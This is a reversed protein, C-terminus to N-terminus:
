NFFKASNTHQRAYNRDVTKKMREVPGNLIKALDSSITKTPINKHPKSNSLPESLSGLVSTALATSPRQKLNSINKSDMVIASIPRNKSILAPKINRRAATLPRNLSVLSKINPVYPNDFIIKEDCYDYKYKEPKANRIKSKIKSIENNMFASYSQVSKTEWGQSIGDFNSLISPTYHFDQEDASDEVIHDLPTKISSGEKFFAGAIHERYSDQRKLTLNEPLKSRGKMWNGVIENSVASIATQKQEAERVM